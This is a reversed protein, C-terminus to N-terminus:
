AENAARGSRYDNFWRQLAEFSLPRAIHFGQAIDCKQERLRLLSEQNEVGEATVSLGLNHALEITSHVIIADNEDEQMNIVFSRDIKLEHVPLLKLYGLSSFGTGFDDIALNINMHGLETLVERARLPDNMMASETIELTLKEAPFNHKTLLHAVHQPLKPDRLNWASLNVAIGLRQDPGSFEANQALATDIVWLTLADICGTHEAMNVIREPPISGLQPHPWRLLAEVAVVEDTRLDIQPQYYLQLNCSSDLETHLDDVLALRDASHESRSLDFLQFDMNNRKAQYMAVDARRVLTAADQGHQPYVAIGISVGVHLNLRDIRFVEKFLDAIKAAFQRAQETETDPAVIAFEDGGLRAVTDSERLVRGLRQGVQQLLQDGVPHGLADNVDKFRDLDLLLLAMSRRDRKMMQIAHELRDQLLMRNPLGTLTDHLAQHELAMQRQRIQKRMTNFAEVLRHIERSSRADPRYGADDGDASLASAIRAIPRLVSRDIMLYVLIVFALAVAALGWLAASIQSAVRRVTAVNEASWSTIGHEITTLAAFVQEQKPRVVTEMYHLDERWVSASRLEKAAKWNTQWRRSAAQMTALADEAGLDLKGEDKLVRLEALQAEIEENLKDINEEQPTMEINNLGAFRIIVARFNLIKLRWLDRVQDFRGYLDSAYPRGDNEAIERLALGAATEFANNPDLLKQTIYPLLPYVWNVDERRAALYQVKDTLLALADRLRQLQESLGAIDIAPNASLSHLEQRASNLSTVIDREYKTSPSILTANLAIDAKWVLNRIKGIAESARDRLQLAESNTRSVESTYRNAFMACALLFICVGTAVSLYRTRLSRRSRASSPISAKLM